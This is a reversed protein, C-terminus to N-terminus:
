NYMDEILYDMRRYRRKSWYDRVKRIASNTVVIVIPIVVICTLMLMLVNYNTESRHGPIAESSQLSQPEVYHVQSPTEAVKSKFEPMDDVSFTIPPKKPAATTTPKPTTTTTTTTTTKKTTSSATTNTTSTTSTSKFTSTTSPTTSPTKSLTAAKPDANGDTKNTSDSSTGSRSTQSSVNSAEVKLSSASDLPSDDTTKNNNPDSDTKTVGRHKIEPIEEKNVTSNVNVIGGEAFGVTLNTGNNPIIDSSNTAGYTPQVTSISLLVCIVFSVFFMKENNSSTNARVLFIGCYVIKLTSQLCM